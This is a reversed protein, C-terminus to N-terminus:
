MVKSELPKTVATPADDGATSKVARAWAVFPSTGSTLQELYAILLAQQSSVRPSFIVDAIGRCTLAAVLSGVVLVPDSFDVFGEVELAQKVDDSPGKNANFAYGGHTLDWGDLKRVDVSITALAAILIEIAKKQELPARDANEVLAQVVKPGKLFLIKKDATGNMKRILANALAIFEERLALPLSEVVDSVSQPRMLLRSPARNALTHSLGVPPIFIRRSSKSFNAAAYATVTILASALVIM